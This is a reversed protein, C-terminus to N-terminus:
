FDIESMRKVDILNVLFSDLEIQLTRKHIEKSTKHLNLGYLWMSNGYFSIIDRFM